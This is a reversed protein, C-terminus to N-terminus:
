AKLILVPLIACVFMMFMQMGGSVGGVTGLLYEGYSCFRQERGFLIMPPSKWALSGANYM